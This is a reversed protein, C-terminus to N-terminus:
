YDWEIVFGAPFGAHFSFTKAYIPTPRVFHREISCTIGEILNKKKVVVRIYVFRFAATARPPAALSPRRFVM